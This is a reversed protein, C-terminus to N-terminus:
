SNYNENLKIENEWLNSSQNRSFIEYRETQM